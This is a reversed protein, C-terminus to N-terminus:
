LSPLASDALDWVTKTDEFDFGRDTSINALKRIGQGENTICFGYRERFKVRRIDRFPDDFQDTSVDEDVVMIGIEDRDAMIMDTKKSAATYSIFPSIVIQLPVPFLDPVDVYTTSTNRLSAEPVAQGLNGGAYNWPLPNSGQATRFLPGGNAFGFARMTPDRAMILWGAANMLLLNPLFGDNVLDSYVVFLDDLRLTKNGAGALDRGTTKGNESTSPSDNDFSLVANDLIQNAAKQEKHRAMARGAGQILMSMIDFQSYRLLEETIRVACGVKGMKATVTGAWRPGMLEPYEDGEAMDQVGSMASVAPFSITTGASFRIMRFLQTLVLQPEIAERVIKTMVRPILVSADPTSMADVLDKYGMRASESEQGRFMDADRSDKFGNNRWVQYALAFKSEQDTMRRLATKADEGFGHEKLLTGVRDRLYKDLSEREVSLNLDKSSM